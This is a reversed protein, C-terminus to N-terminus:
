GSPDRVSRRGANRSAERKRRSCQRVAMAGGQHFQDMTTSYHSAPLDKRAMAGRQRAANTKSFACGDARPATKSQVQRQWTGQEVARHNVPVAMNLLVAYHDTKFRGHLRAAHCPASAANIVGAVSVRIYRDSPPSNWDM